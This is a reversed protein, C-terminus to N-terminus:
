AYKYLHYDGPCNDTPASPVFEKLDYLIYGIGSTEFDTFAKCVTNGKEHYPTGEPCEQYCNNDSSISVDFHYKAENPCNKYCKKLTIGDIETEIQYKYDGDPCGNLCLKARKLTDINPVFSECEAQCAYHKKSSDHTDIIETYYPYDEPCDNLCIKNMDEEHHVFENQFYKKDTPCIPICKGNDIYPKHNPCQYLCMNYESYVDGTGESEYLFYKKDTLDNCNNICM